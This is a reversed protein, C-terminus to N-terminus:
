SGSNRAHFLAAATSASVDRFPGILTRLFRRDFGFVVGVSTSVSLIRFYYDQQTEEKHPPRNESCCSM